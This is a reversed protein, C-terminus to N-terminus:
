GWGWIQAEEPPNFGLVCGPRQLMVCRLLEAHDPPYANPSFNSSRVNSFRQGPPKSVKVSSRIHSVVRNHCPRIVRGKPAETEEDAFHFHTSQIIKLEQTVNEKQLLYLYPFEQTIFSTLSRTNGSCCSQHSSHLPNSGQGPFKWMSHARGFFFFFFLFLYTHDRSVFGINM